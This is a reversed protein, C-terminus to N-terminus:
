GGAALCVRVHGPPRSPQNSVALTSPPAAESRTCQRHFARQPSPSDGPPVVQCRYEPVKM